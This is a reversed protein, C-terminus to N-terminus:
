RSAIRELWALLADLFKPTFQKQLSGYEALSGSQAKQFLHNANPVVVISANKNQSLAKQIVPRNLELIVQQDLEGFLALVPCRLERVYSVPDIDIFRRFWLSRTQSLSREASTDVFAVSDPYSKRQEDTLEAYQRAAVLAIRKRIDSMDGNSRMADYIANQLSLAEQIDAASAGAQKAMLGIQSNVLSDGRLGPGAMLVIGAVDGPDRSAAISAAIAGESHGLLDIRSADIGAQSKLFKVAALADGAYDDTTCNAQSGTSGGVGRDDFRLVAFGRRTLTDAIQKFIKFGYVNEDRDQAGSGTLLVLAPHKGPTPPLTLTGALTVTDNEFTVERQPYPPPPEATRRSGAIASPLLAFTGQAQGQVFLGTLSDANITGNFIATTLGAPLEFHVVSGASVVNRLALGRAGQQPIDITGSLTGSSDHFTVIIDLNIGGIYIAGEWKGPLPTQASASFCSLVVFLICSLPKM